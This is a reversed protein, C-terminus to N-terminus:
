EIQSLANYIMIADLGLMGYAVIPAGPGALGALFGKGVIRAAAKLGITKGLKKIIYSAGKEAYVRKLKSIVHPAAVTGVGATALGAADGMHEANEDTAGMLSAAGSTAMSAGQYLGLGVGLSKMMGLGKVPGLNVKGGKIQSLLAEGKTGLNKIAQNINASSVVKGSKTLSNIIGQLQDASSQTLTGDLRAAKLYKPMDKIASEPIAESALKSVTSAGLGKVNVNGGASLIKAQSGSIEGADMMKAIQGKSLKSGVFSKSGDGILKQNPFLKQAQKTIQSTTNKDLGKGRLFRYAGFGATAAVVAGGFLTKKTNDEYTRGLKEGMSLTSEPDYYQMLNGRTETDLSNMFSERMSPDWEAITKSVHRKWGEESHELPDRILSKRIGAMEAKQGAQYYSEFGQMNGGVKEKWKILHKSRTGEEFKMGDMGASWKADKGTPYNGFVFNETRKQTYYDSEQRELQRTKYKAMQEQMKIQSNARMRDAITNSGSAAGGQLPNHSVGTLNMAKVESM